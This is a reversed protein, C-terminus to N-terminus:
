LKCKISQVSNDYDGYDNFVVYNLTDRKGFEWESYQNIGLGYAKNSSYVPPLSTQPNEQIVDGDRVLGFEACFKDGIKQAVDYSGAILRRRYSVDFNQYLMNQIDSTWGGFSSGAIFFGDSSIYNPYLDQPSGVYELQAAELEISYPKDFTVTRDSNETCSVYYLFDYKGSPAYKNNIYLFITRSM